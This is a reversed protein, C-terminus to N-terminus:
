VLSVKLIPWWVQLGLRIMARLVNVYPACVDMFTWGSVASWPIASLLDKFSLTM